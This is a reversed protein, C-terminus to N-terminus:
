RGGIQDMKRTAIRIEDGRDEGSGQGEDRDLEGAGPARSNSPRAGAPHGECVPRPGRRTADPSQAEHGAERQDGVVVVDPPRLPLLDEIRECRTPDAIEAEVLLGARYGVPRGAATM